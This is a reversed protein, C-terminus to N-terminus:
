RLRLSHRRMNGNDHM